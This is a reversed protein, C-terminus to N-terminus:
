FSSKFHCELSRFCTFWVCHADHSHIRSHFRCHEFSDASREMGELGWVGVAYGGVGAAVWSMRCCVVLGRRGVGYKRGCSVGFVVWEGFRM